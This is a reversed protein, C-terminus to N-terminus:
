INADFIYVGGQDTIAGEWRPAGAILIAANSSLAVSRGLLDSGAADSATLVPGRQIWASGNWDYIYIGGQDSFAGDWANAGVALTSGSGSLAVSIGFYDSAAADAATLVAERQAWVSGNWDYIYVGGQDTVTGEWAFTGVALITGNGSLSVSIGYYDSAAADAATLVAGRQIWASGNWDYIYVGGQDAAAGEWLYVGVALVTGDDSLSVAVGYQDNVAADAATLVPGRQVWASGNWDYIYVAGRSNDRVTAGVALVTGDNSLAVAVGYADFAAADAAALVSGRQTWASGVWDYIYVGGQDTSSGEWAYAGVALIAGNGSLAVSEGYRDTDAADAATLVSGRQIWQVTTAVFAATDAGSETASLSAHLGGDAYIASSDGVTEVADVSAAVDVSATIAASDSGSEVAALTASVDFPSSTFLATAQPSRRGSPHISIVEFEYDGAVINNLEINLEDTIERKWLGNTRRWTIEYYLTDATREWSLICNLVSSAAGGPVDSWYGYASVNAPAPQERPSVSALENEALSAMSEIRAYKAPDHALATIQAVFGEQEQISIIRWLTPEAVTAAQLVWIAMDAAASPLASALHIEAIQQVGPAPFTAGAVDRTAMTGDALMISLRYAVASDMEVPADLTIVTLTAATARGGWRMGSRFNDQVAIVDGPRVAASDLGAKFSLTDREALESQLIWKGHRHAQGRSVAGVAIVETENVGYRQIGADDPVYEVKPRYMDEPDRWEVLAVTHRARHASGSYSFQGDVVNACTFLQVPDAPMDAGSQLVGGAVFLMGRFISSLQLLVKYAEARQRVHVNCTFRPELIPDGNAKREGSDVLGDCYQAITYLNWKDIDASKIFQGLGYRETTALDYFCWAPNDTWAIKFMGDWVGSYARTIPNYNSPVRVKLLKMLYKRSPISSFRAAPIRLWMMATNPYSLRALKETRLMDWWSEDSRRSDASDPTAREVKIEWPGAGYDEFDIRFQRQTRSMAKGGCNLEGHVKHFSVSEFWVSLSGPRTDGVAEWKVMFPHNDGTVIKIREGARYRKKARDYTFDALGWETWNSGNDFSYSIMVDTLDTERWLHLECVYANQDAAIAWHDPAVGYGAPVSSSVDVATIYRAWSGGNSRIFLRMQCPTGVVDGEGNLYALRPFGLTVVARDVDVDNVARIVPSSFTVKTGINEEAAVTQVNKFPAQEQTGKRLDWAVGKFIKEGADNVLATDDLYISKSGSVLGGIEGESIAELLEVKARSSFDDPAEVGGGGGGGGGSKGGGGAGRIAM